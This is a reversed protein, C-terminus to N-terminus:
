EGVEGKALKVAESIALPGTAAKARYQEGNGLIDCWWDEGAKEIRVAWGAELMRQVAHMAAPWDTSYRRYSSGIISSVDRDLQQTM